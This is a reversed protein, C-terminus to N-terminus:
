KQAKGVCLKCVATMGVREAADKFNVGAVGGLESLREFELSCLFLGFDAITLTLASAARQKWVPLRDNQSRRIEGLLVDIFDHLLETFLELAVGVVEHM